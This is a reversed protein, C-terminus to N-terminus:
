KQTDEIFRDLARVFAKQLARYHEQFGWLDFPQDNDIGWAIGEVGPEYKEELERLTYKITANEPVFIVRCGCLRAIENMATPNEFSYVAEHKNFIDALAQQDYAMEKTIRMLGQTYPLPLDRGKGVFVCRKSRLRGQDKFLNLNLIPLFLLHNKNVRFTDYLRSFVYIKDSPSFVTPSPQGYLGMVGPRNLIYRVVVDAGTPNDAPYIEPYIAVFNHDDSRANLYAVEGKALLWGYLGYMVRIGGSLPDFPPTMISYFRRM